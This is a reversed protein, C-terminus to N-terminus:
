YKMWCRIQMGSSHQPLELSFWFTLRNGTTHDTITGNSSDNEIYVQNAQPNAWFSESLRVAQTEQGEQGEPEPGKKWTEHKWNLNKQTKCKAM